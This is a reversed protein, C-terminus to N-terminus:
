KEDFVLTEEYTMKPVRRIDFFFFNIRFRKEGSNAHSIMSGGIVGVITDDLTPYGGVGEKKLKLWGIVLRGESIHPEFELVAVPTSIDPFIEIRPNLSQSIETETTNELNIERFVIIMNHLDKLAVDIGYAQEMGSDNPASYLSRNWLGKRMKGRFTSSFAFGAFDSPPGMAPGLIRQQCERRVRIATPSSFRYVMEGPLLIIAAIFLRSGSGMERVPYETIWRKQICRDINARIIDINRYQIQKAPGATIRLPPNFWREPEVGGMSAEFRDLVEAEIHKKAEDIETGFPDDAPGKAKEERRGLAIQERQEQQEQIRRDEEEEEEMAIREREIELQEQQEQIRRKEAEEDEMANREREIELQEQQEQIRRKEEQEEEMAIRERERERELQEQQEQIERELQEQQEQIERELQEQQEQIRRNEEQEEEMTIRDRELEAALLAEEQEKETREREERERIRRNEASEEYSITNLTAIEAVVRPFVEAIFREYIEYVFNLSPAKPNTLKPEGFIVLDGMDQYTVGRIFTQEPSTSSLWVVASSTIYKLMAEHFWPIMDKDFDENRLLALARRRIVLWAKNFLMVRMHQLREKRESEIMARVDADTIQHKKYYYLPLGDEFLPDFYVITSTKFPPLDGDYIEQPRMSGVEMELVEEVPVMSSLKNRTIPQNLNTMDRDTVRKVSEWGSPMSSAYVNQLKMKYPKDNQIADADALPHTEIFTTSWVAVNSHGYAMLDYSRGKWLETLNKKVNPPATEMRMFAAVVNSFDGWRSLTDDANERIKQNGMFAKTYLLSNGLWFRNFVFTDARVSVRPFENTNQQIRVEKYKRMNYATISAIQPHTVKGTRINYGPFYLPLWHEAKRDVAQKLSPHLFPEGSTPDIYMLHKLILLIDGGSEEEIRVDVLASIRVLTQDTYAHAFLISNPLKEEREDKETWRNRLYSHGWRAIDNRYEDVRREKEEDSLGYYEEVLSVLTALVTGQKDPWDWLRPQDAADQM